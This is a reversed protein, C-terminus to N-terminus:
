QVAYGVSQALQVLQTQLDPLGDAMKGGDRVKAVVTSTFADEVGYVTASQSPSILAAQAKLVPTPNEAYFTDKSHDAIWADAAPGYAPYTASARQYETDTAMWTAIDAAGQLNKSHKSVLYIGGGTSGSWHKEDAGFSPYAAAALQGPKTHFGTDPKFVFDGYWSAGPMMLIKNEQGLKVVDPDFPGSRSVSGNALLPDLVDTVRTCTKDKTDIHVTMDGTVSQIPCGSPWFFDYYAFKFGATGIIYGPHEKAVQSGLAAYEDWTTPVKYGFQDMLTKNYWLVSQALDNKLCYLKGNVTCGDNSVGFGEQVKADVLKNLSATYDFTKNSLAAVDNPQASFIVDPWGKGTRNFLQIKSLLAASDYTEIKMKVGPHESKFKEFGPQRTSDTWVLLEANKDQKAGSASSDSGGCASLSTVALAATAALLALRAGRRHSIKM